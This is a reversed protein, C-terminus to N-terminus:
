RWNFRYVLESRLTQAFLHSHVLYNPTLSPLSLNTDTRSGYDAFRYETKWSLGPLWGLNYEYGTGVFWGGM